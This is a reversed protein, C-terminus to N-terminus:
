TFSYLVYDLIRNSDIKMLAIKHYIPVRMNELDAGIRGESVVIPDIKVM